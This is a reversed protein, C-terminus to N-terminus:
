GGVHWGWGLDGKQLDNFQQSNINRNIFDCVKWSRSWNGGFKGPRSFPVETTKNKKAKRREKKKEETKSSQIFESGELQM